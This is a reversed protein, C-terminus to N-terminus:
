AARRERLAIIAGLVVVGYIINRVAEPLVTGSLMIGLATFLIAGGFIGLYHGRGGTILTGGLVVVAISSLLYPDGMGYFAQSSFGALLIGVIASCFGSLVYAFLTPLGTRVGSLRAVLASNGIAFIRRGIATYNLLLTAAIVFAILFWGVPAIGGLRGSVFWDLVPPAKGIPAGGSFLLSVGELVGNMALTVIVPSLGFLVIVSGNLFGIAIGAALSLPIVWVAPADLGNTLTTAVIATFTITWPVSLDLGGSIIVTGQGLGLIALFATFILMANLYGITSFDSGALVITAILVLIYILYPPVSFRLTARNRTFWSVPIVDAAQKGGALRDLRVAAGLASLRGPLTGQRMAQLTHRWYRLHGFVPSDAGLSFGLVALLLIVGEVVPTYYTRVGLVLFINVLITLTLAGFITGVCGGRGGGILTGGLVVAAFIQLLMKSGILPDGGGMNASIFLGAAGYATGAFTFTLFRVLRVDIGNSAASEADSGIAYIATGLRTNKLLLWFAVAVLLVVVPAPLGDVIVDGTFILSFDWPMEGGPFKLILLASGQAILMTALTVVISQLRLYAVLFGNVAGFATGVGLALAISVLTYAATGMESNALQTVLIVNVLSVVAGASLDLGGALVVLTEGLAALALTAAGSTISSIDFYSIGQGTILQLIVLMLVFVGLAVISGRQRRWNFASRLYDFMGIAAM